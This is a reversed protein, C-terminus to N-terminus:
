TCIQIFKLSHNGASDTMASDTVDAEDLPGSEDALGVTAIVRVHGSEFNRYMFLAYEIDHDAEPYKKGPL